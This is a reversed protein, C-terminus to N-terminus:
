FLRGQKLEPPESEGPWPPLDPLAPVHQQLAHHFRRALEPAHFDNPTHMFLFPVQGATIWAAVIPAWEDIWPQVRDVDNRGILRLFPHSATVTRRLPTQPKQRQAKKETDDEPPDSFLPRSDLLVKDISLERLLADLRQEEPGEDFYGLHRVEVAYPFRRPLARLYRELTGFQDPGFNPPLQLFSPGLREADDLITLIELFQRTPEEADIMRLEHSIARPFKLAFRFGAATSEAWRLVTAGDPLAYFTSNGEVTNFARSYLGLWERRPAGSPYLSGRWAQSAWVPCGLHCHMM